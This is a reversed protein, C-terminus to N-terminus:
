LVFETKPLSFIFVKLYFILFNEGFYPERKKSLIMKLKM